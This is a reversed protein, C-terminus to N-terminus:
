IRYSLTVASRDVAGMASVVILRCVGSGIMAEVLPTAAAAAPRGDPRFSKSLAAGLCSLVADHGPVAAALTDPSSADGEIIRVDPPVGAKAPNRVVAAGSHGGRALRVVQRGTGGTAGLILIKMSPGGPNVPVLHVGSIPRKNRSRSPCRFGHLRTG